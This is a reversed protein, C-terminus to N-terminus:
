PRVEKVSKLPVYGSYGNYNNHKTNREWIFVFSELSCCRTEIYRFAPMDEQWHESRQVECRWVKPKGSDTLRFGEIDVFIRQTRM